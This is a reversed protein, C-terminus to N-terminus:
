EEPFIKLAEKVCAAAVSVATDPSMAAMDKAGVYEVAITVGEIVPFTNSMDRVEIVFADNMEVRVTDPAKTDM